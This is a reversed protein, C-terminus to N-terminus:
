PKLEDPASPASVRAWSEELERKFYYADEGMVDFRIAVLEWGEGGLRALHDNVLSEITVIQYEWKRM